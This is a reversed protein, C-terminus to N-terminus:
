ETIGRRARKEGGGGSTREAMIPLEKTKEHFLGAHNYIKAKELIPTLFRNDEVGIKYELPRSVLGFHV